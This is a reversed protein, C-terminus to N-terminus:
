SAKVKQTMRSFISLMYKQALILVGKQM